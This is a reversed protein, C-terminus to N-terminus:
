GGQKMPEPLSMLAKLDFRIQTEQGVAPPTFPEFGSGRFCLWLLSSSELPVDFRFTAEAPRGDDTLSVIKVTMGTLRVQDGLAFRRRESRFVQDLPFRLYGAEPAIALTRDDLRRITVSPIAPALVRLYRPVSQGDMERRLLLYNAIMSSPANVVVVTRNELSEQPIQVHLRAEVWRPGLPHASRLPLALPAIVAHVAVLFWAVTKATVRWLANSPAEGSFVFGWFQALLGAAGIGVFTLLRDMPITASVPIAALLMGTAWFRSLHNRRLLPTMVFLLLGLYGAAFWLFTTSTPPHLVVAIDAPFPSWQGLLLMPLRDAAASLYRGTDTLPDIYLGMDRVGYGWSARLAAWVVVGAAYPWLALLGRRKGRPDVFLGYAALYACTGIGEEKSFLAALLLLPALLAARRSGDRRWRDHAILASVGFTAAVLVNRNAIFGVTAGRADDVAFLLAAVGAGWTAGFMRRYFVATAAVAAGLWFLSHAHMLLPSDPWLAYDLRHTLVTLAQLFEAKLGPDTWWPYLGIEMLRGTRDPDGHFFRFMESPSGLLDQIRSKELLVARHFWDDLMWGAGLSPLALLIAMVAVAAPLHRTKLFSGVLRRLVAKSM